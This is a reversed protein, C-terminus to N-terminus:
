GEIIESDIEIDCTSSTISDVGGVAIPRGMAQGTFYYATNDQLLVKYSYSNDSNVATALLIQGPDAPAYAMQLAITGNDFSGKRKIIQRSSLPQHTVQNYKKGFEGIDVVENIITYSVAEFAGLTISAPAAGIWISSGASTM